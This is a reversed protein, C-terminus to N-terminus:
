PTKKAEILKLQSEISKVRKQSAPSRLEKLVKLTKEYYSKAQAFNKQEFYFQAVQYSLEPSEESLKFAELLWKEAEKTNQLKTELLSLNSATFWHKQDLKWARTLIEKAEQMKKPDYEVKGEYEFMGEMMTTMALNNILVLDDPFEKLASELEKKALEKKYQLLYINAIQSHDHPTKAKVKKFFSLAEVWKKRNFAQFAKLRNTDLRYNAQTIQKLESLRKRFQRAQPNEKKSKPDKFAEIVIFSNKDNKLNEPCHFYYFHTLLDYYELVLGFRDHINKKTKYSLVYLNSKSGKQTVKLSLYVDYAKGSPTNWVEYAGFSPLSILFLIISLFAAFRLDRSGQARPIVKEICEIKM